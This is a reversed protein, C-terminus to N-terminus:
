AKDRKENFVTNIHRKTITATKLLMYKIFLNTLIENIVITKDDNNKIFFAKNFNPQLLDNFLKCSQFDQFRQLYLIDM